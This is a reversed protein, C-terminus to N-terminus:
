APAVAVLALGEGLHLQECRVRSGPPFEWTESPPAPADAIRYISGGESVAEVPRSVDVAEDTLAVYITEMGGM